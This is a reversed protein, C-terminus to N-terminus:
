QQQNNLMNITQQSFSQEELDEKQNNMCLIIENQAIQQMKQLKQQLAQIEEQHVAMNKQAELQQKQTKESHDIQVKKISQIKKVVWIVFIIIVFIFFAAIAVCIILLNQDMKQSIMFDYPNCKGEETFIYGDICLNSSQCSQHEKAILGQGCHIMCNAQSYFQSNLCKNQCFQTNTVLSCNPCQYIGLISDVIKEECILKKECIRDISNLIYGNVCINTSQCLSQNPAILGNRCYYMCQNQQYDYYQSESCENQCYQTDVVFSQNNCVKVYNDPITDNIINSPQSIVCKNQSYDWQFGDICTNTRELSCGSKNQAILGDGCYFMCRSEQQYYYVLGGKSYYNCENKCFNTDTVLSCNDCLKVNSDMLISPCNFQKQCSRSDSNWQFGDVCENSTKCGSQNQSIIGDGCYYWCQNKQENFYLNSTLYCSNQCSSTDTVFSCNSCIKVYTDPVKGSPCQIQISAECKKTQFNWQSGDLCFLNSFCNSIDEAIFGNQCYHMCKNQQNLYFQDVTCNNQCYKIDTVLSCNDCQYLKPNESFSKQSCKECKQIKEIFQFGDICVNTKQCSSQNLAMFGDGCYTMCGYQLSFIQSTLCKKQCFENNTALFCSPCQYINFNADILSQSCKECKKTQINFKFEDICKNASECSDEDILILGDDCLQVCQNYQKSYYESAGCISCNQINSTFSCNSCTFLNLNSDLINEECKKCKNDQTSWMYGDICYNSFQCGNEDSAILGNGCYHKCAYINASFYESKQCISCDSTNLVLSCNQCQYIQLNSDFIEQNCNKQCKFNQSNWNFGDICLQSYQCDENLSQVIGNGCYKMCKSESKSFYQSYQCENQCDQLDSVLSCNPCYQLNLNSDLATQACQICKNFKNDWQFGDICLNSSASCIQNENQIRGNECQQYCNSNIQSFYQQTKCTNQCYQINSVISCNPCQYLNLSKDYVLQDCKKCQNDKKSWQFGDICLESNICSKKNQAIIGNGCYAMCGHSASFYNGDCDNDCYKIDSTFTCNLCQFLNLSLDYVKKSCTKKRICKNEIQSYSSGDVCEYQTQCSSQGQFAISGNGCYTMCYGSLEQYFQSHKCSNKCHKSDIALSCNQCQYLSLDKDIVSEKCISQQKCKQESTNWEYGDICISSSSCNNDQSILGDHCYYMCNSYYLSYFQYNSCSNYDCFQTNTVLSNNECKYLGLNKDYISTDCNSVEIFLFIGILIYCEVLKKM